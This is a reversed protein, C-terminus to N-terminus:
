NLQKLNNSLQKIQERIESFKDEHPPYETITGDRIDYKNDEYYKKIWEDDQVLSDYFSPNFSGQKLLVPM